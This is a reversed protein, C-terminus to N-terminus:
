TRPRCDLSGVAGSAGLSEEEHRPLREVTYVNPLLDDVLHEHRPCLLILNDFANRDRMSMERDYDWRASGPLRGIIHCVIANISSWSPDALREECAPTRDDEQFSCHNNSFAFLTKVIPLSPKQRGDDGGHDDLGSM